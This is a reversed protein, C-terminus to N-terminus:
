QDGILTNSVLLDLGFKELIVFCTSLKAEFGDAQNQRRCLPNM